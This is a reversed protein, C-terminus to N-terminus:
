ALKVREFFPRCVRALAEEQFETLFAVDLMQSSNFKKHFLQALSSILGVDDDNLGSRLGLIVHQQNSQDYEVIALYARAVSQHDMLIPSWEAKLDQEPLGDQEGLFYLEGPSVTTYAKSRRFWLLINQLWRM